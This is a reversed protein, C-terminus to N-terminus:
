EALDEMGGFDIQVGQASDGHLEADLANHMAYLERTAHTLDRLGIGTYERAIRILRERDAEELQGDGALRTLAKELAAREANAARVQRSIAGIGVEVGSWAKSVARRRAERRAALFDEDAEQATHIWDYVTSRPVGIAQAVKTASTGGAVMALAKERISDDYKSGMM